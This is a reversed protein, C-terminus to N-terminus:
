AAEIRRFEIVWVWPNTDWSYGRKANISDWLEAFGARFSGREEADGESSYRGTPVGLAEAGEARADAESIDRVREVRVATVELFLRAAWKPMFRSSRWRTPGKGPKWFVDGTERNCGLGAESADERSQDVLRLFMAKDTCELWERRVFDDAKYDVAIARREHSWAGVRWAENVRLRDGPRGYPCMLQYPRMGHEENIGMLEGTTRDAMLGDSDIYWHDPAQNIHELWTTRRTMTKRGELIARVM